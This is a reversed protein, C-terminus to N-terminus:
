IIKGILYMVLIMLLTFLISGLISITYKRRKGKFVTVDGPLKGIGRTGVFYLIVGIVIALLLLIKGM